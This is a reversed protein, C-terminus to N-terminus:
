KLFFHRHSQRYQLYLLRLNQFSISHKGTDHANSRSRTQSQENNLRNTEYMLPVLLHGRLVIGTLESAIQRRSM